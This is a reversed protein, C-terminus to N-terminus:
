GGMMTEYEKQLAAIKERVQEDDSTLVMLQGDGTKGFSLHGGSAMIDWMKYCWPCMKEKAQEATFELTEEGAVHMADAMEHYTQVKSAETITTLTAMGDDLTIVEMKMVPMLEAMHPAMVKCVHCNAMAAMPDAQDEGATAPSALTLTLLAGAWLLTRM